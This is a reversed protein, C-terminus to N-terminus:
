GRGLGIGVLDFLNEDIQDAVRYVREAFPGIGADQGDARFLGAIVDPHDHRVVAGPNGRSMIPRM